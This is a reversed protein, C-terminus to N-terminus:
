YNQAPLRAPPQDLHALNNLRVWHLESWYIITETYLVKLAQSLSIYKFADHRSSTCVSLTLSWCWFLHLSADFHLAHPAPGVSPVLSLRRWDGRQTWDSGSLGLQLEWVPICMLGDWWTCLTTTNFEDACRWWNWSCCWQKRIWGWRWGRGPTKKNKLECCWQKIWWRRNSRANKRSRSMEVRMVETDASCTSFCVFCLCLFFVWILDVWVWFRNVRFLTKTSPGVPRLTAFLFFFPTCYVSKNDFQFM